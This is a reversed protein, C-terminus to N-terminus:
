SVFRIIFPYQYNEGALHRIFGLIMLVFWAILVVPFVLFGILVFILASAIFLYIIFSLNFNIIEYCTEKELQSLENKRILLYALVLVIGLTGGSLLNGALHIIGLMKVGEKPTSKTASMSANKLLPKKQSQKKSVSKVVTQPSVKKPTSSKKASSIPKTTTKKLVPTKAVEASITAKQPVAKKPAKKAPSKKTTTKIM